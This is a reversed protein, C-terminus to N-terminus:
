NTEYLIEKDIIRKEEDSLLPLQCFMGNGIHPIAKDEPKIIVEVFIREETVLREIAIYYEDYTEVKIYNFNYAKAVKEFDPTYYGTRTGIDRGDFIKIQLDYIMGLSNNNLLVINIPLMNGDIANLEQINMQLGGDGTICYVKKECFSAGISAPLSYGMAGLGGSTLVRSNKGVYVSQAAYMQNNGVDFTFVCSDNVLRKSLDYLFSNANFNKLNKYAHLYKEKLSNAKFLWENKCIFSNNIEFIKKLFNEVSCNISITENLNNGLESNDIDIHIINKKEICQKNVPSIQRCDMRTGLALICDAYEICMNANRNGYDGIMGQYCEHNHPIVDLGMLSCVVPIKIIDLLKILLEKSERSKAGGGVIIVPRVSDNIMKVIYNLDFIMNNDLNYKKESLLKESFQERQVDHPINILVPGKRGELAIEIAKEMEYIVDQASFVTVCYKTIPKVMDIINIDQFARQRGNNSQPVTTNVDGSIFLCPLSDCYANAIGNILNIAGPGSSAIAVGITENTQAYANAAFAAGQENYTEFFRVNNNNGISDIIHSVNGGQYGFIVKVGLKSIRNIIYDSVKIM